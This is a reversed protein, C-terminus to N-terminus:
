EDDTVKRELFQGLHKQWDIEFPLQGTLPTGRANSNLDSGPLYYLENEAIYDYFDSGFDDWEEPCVGIRKKKEEDLLILPM